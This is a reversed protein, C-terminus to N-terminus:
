RMGGEQSLFYVPDSYVGVEITVAAVKVSYNTYIRLNRLEFRRENSSPDVVSRRRRRGSQSSLIDIRTTNYNANERAPGWSINYAQLRGNLRGDDPVPEWEIIVYASTINSRPVVKATINIPPDEPALTFSFRHMVVNATPLLLLLLLIDSQHVGRHKKLIM